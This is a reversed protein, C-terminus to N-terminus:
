RPDIYCLEAGDSGAGDSETYDLEADDLETSNKSLTHAEPSCKPSAFSIWPYRM